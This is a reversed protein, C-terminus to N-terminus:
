IILFTPLGNGGSIETFYLGKDPFAQHVVSMASVDGAYAHFATGSVYKNAENDELISISYAPKDFNHDYAIIKTNIGAAEFLPGLSNKIFETQASAEMKMTPYGAEHLPENQPTIADITIGYNAYAKIYKVFYNAYANYWIPKLSGGQLSQNTKM